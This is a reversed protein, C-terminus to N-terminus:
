QDFKPWSGEDKWKQILEKVAAETIGPVKPKFGTINQIKKNSLGFQHKSLLYLDLYPSLPTNPVPPNSTTIMQTWAGVHEENIGEVSDELRFKAATSTFFDYYEHTTGMVTAITKLLENYTLDPNGSLNFLPANVVVNHPVVGEVEGVHKKENHWQITEGALEGAKQRGGIEDIWTACRWLAAAVDTNHTVNYLFKGPSWLSKVPQKLHAYVASIVFISSIMEIQYTGYTQTTRLIVLNLNPIAAIARLSEHWWTGNVGEPKLDDKEEAPKKDSTYFPHQLRVYAKVNRKAAELAIFRAVHFTQTIQVQEPRDWRIEGSLDFVYSYPAQGEPPDFTSEVISAVTLNAQKYEVIPNKVVEKFEAGIYTTPPHISYKDVIRLHNVLSEGQLPVLHGVLARSLTNLGGFVIVNPKQSM